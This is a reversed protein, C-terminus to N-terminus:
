VTVGFISSVEFSCGGSKITNPNVTTVVCHKELLGLHHGYQARRILIKLLKVLSHYRSVMFLCSFNAFLFVFCVLFELLFLCAHFLFELGLIIMIILYPSGCVVSCM